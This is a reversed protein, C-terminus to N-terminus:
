KELFISPVRHENGDYVSSHLQAHLLLALVEILSQFIIGFHSDGDGYMVLVLVGAHAYCEFTVLRMNVPDIVKGSAIAAEDKRGRKKVRGDVDSEGKGLSSTPMVGMCTVREDSDDDSFQVQSSSDMRQRASTSPARRKGSGASKSASAAGSATTTLVNDSSAVGGTVSAAAIARANQMIRREAARAALERRSINRGDNSDSMNSM